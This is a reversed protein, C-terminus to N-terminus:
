TSVWHGRFSWSGSGNPSLISVVLYITLHMLYILIHITHLVAMATTTKRVIALLGPLSRVRTRTNVRSLIIMKM